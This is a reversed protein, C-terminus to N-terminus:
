AIYVSSLGEVAFEGSGTAILTPGKTVSNNVTRISRRASGRAHWWYTALLSHKTTGTLYIDPPEPHWNHQSKTYVAGTKITLTVSVTSSNGSQWIKVNQQGHMM